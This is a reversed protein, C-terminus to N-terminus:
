RIERARLIRGKVKGRKFHKMAKAVSKREIAVYSITSFIDIKGIHAGPIGADKTLAGLLDGPRLKNKKGADIQLTTM